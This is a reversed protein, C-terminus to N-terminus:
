FCSRAAAMLSDHLWSGVITRHVTLPFETIIPGVVVTARITVPDTEPLQLDIAGNVTSIEHSDAWDIAGLTALISGNVVNADAPCNTSFVVRGNVTNLSVRSDPLDATIAGNVTRAILKVHAPVRVVYSVKINSNFLSVSPSTDPTCYEPRSLGRYITCILVGGDNPVVDIYISAPDPRTGTVQVSIQVDPGTAPEARIDGNINRIEISQEPQIQGTWEFTAANLGLPAFAAVFIAASTFHRM